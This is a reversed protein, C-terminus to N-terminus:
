MYILQISRIITIGYHVYPIKGTHLPFSVCVGRFSMGVCLSITLMVHILALTM